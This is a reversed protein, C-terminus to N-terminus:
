KYDYDVPSVDYRRLWRHLSRNVSSRQQSHVPPHACSTGEFEGDDGLSRFLGLMRLRRCSSWHGNALEVAPAPRVRDRLSDDGCCRYFECDRCLRSTKCSPGM